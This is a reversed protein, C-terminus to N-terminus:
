ARLGFGCPRHGVSAASRRHIVSLIVSLGSATLGFATNPMMLGGGPWVTKLIEIGTLWGALSTAAMAM